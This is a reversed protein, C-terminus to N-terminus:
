DQLEKVEKWTNGNVVNVGKKKLIEFAKSAQVGKNCFVVVKKQKKFFDMNKEIEALPINVANKATAEKYQEPIRVDVLVVDPQAIVEKLPKNDIAAVQKQTSCSAFFVLILGSLILNKM